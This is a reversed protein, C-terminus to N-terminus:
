PREQRHLRPLLLVQLAQPLVPHSPVAGAAHRAAARVGPAAPPPAPTGAQLLLGAPLEPRLLQRPSDERRDRGDAPVEPDNWAPQSYKVQSDPGSIPGASLATPCSPSRAPRAVTPS